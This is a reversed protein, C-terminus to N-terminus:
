IGTHLLERNGDAIAHRETISTVNAVDFATGATERDRSIGRTVAHTTQQYACCFFLRCRRGFTRSSILSLSCNTSCTNYTHTHTHTHSTISNVTSRLEDDSTARAVFCCPRSVADNNDSWECLAFVNRAKTGNVVQLLHDDVHSSQNSATSAVRRM